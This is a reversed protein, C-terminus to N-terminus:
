VYRKVEGTYRIIHWTDLKIIYQGRVKYKSSLKNIKGRVILDNCPTVIAEEFIFGNNDIHENSSDYYINNEKKFKKISDEERMPFLFQSSYKELDVPICLLNDIQITESLKISGNVIETPYYSNYFEYLSHVPNNLELINGMHSVINQNNYKIVSISPQGVRISGYQNYCIDYRGCLTFIHKFLLPNDYEHIYELTSDKHFVLEMKPLSCTDKYKYESILKSLDLRVILHYKYYESSRVKSLHKTSSPSYTTTNEIYWETNSMLNTEKPMRIFIPTKYSYIANEDCAMYTIVDDPNIPIKSKTKYERYLRWSAANKEENRKKWEYTKTRRNLKKTFFNDVIDSYNM